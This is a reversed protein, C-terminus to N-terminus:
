SKFGLGIDLKEDFEIEYNYEREFVKMGLFYIKVNKHRGKDYVVTKDRFFAKGTQIIDIKLM